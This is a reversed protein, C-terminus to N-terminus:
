IILLLNYHRADLYLGQQRLVFEYYKSEPALGVGVLLVVLAVHALKLQSRLADLLCELCTLLPQPLPRLLNCQEPILGLLPYQHILFDLSHKTLTLILQRIQTLYELLVLLFVLTLDRM